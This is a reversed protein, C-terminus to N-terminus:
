WLIVMKVSLSILWVPNPEGIQQLSLELLAQYGKVGKKHEQIVLLDKKMFYVHQAGQIECTELAPSGENKELCPRSIVKLRTNCSNKFHCSSSYHVLQRLM